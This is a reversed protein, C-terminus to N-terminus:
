AARLRNARFLSLDFGVPKDAALDAVIEGVVSAFKFGHGSCPSAIVVNRAGPHRDILFHLDPTDTYVCVTHAGLAGNADPVRRALFARIAAIDADRVTRDVDALAVMAGGHHRAAKPGNGLDPLGYFFAAGPEEVSYIPFRDPRFADARALPAFHAVVQREVKLAQAFQPLLAPLGAGACLVLVPARYRNGAATALVVGDANSRWERVAEGYRLTAGHHAALALMARVCAEPFLVGADPEWVAQMSADARFLPFREALTRATLIEHPLAHERASALVGPILEGAPPGIMLGGTKLLLREHAASEIERWLAYARELLPVYSPHEYYAKRIIRSEGHHSGLAHPPRHADLGLVRRGRRALHMAAASGISGLGVIVVDYETM